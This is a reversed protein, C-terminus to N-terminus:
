GQFTVSHRGWFSPTEPHNTTFWSGNKGVMRIKRLCSFDSMPDGDLLVVDSRKGPEVTGLQAGRGVFEAAKITASQIAELSSMGIHRLRFLEDVLEGPFAVVAGLDTGACMNLGARYLKRCNEEVGAYQKRNARWFGFAKDYSENKFDLWTSSIFTLHEIAPPEFMEKARDSKLFELKEEFRAMSDNVTLTPVFTICRKRAKDVEDDTLVRDYVLHELSDIDFDLLKDFDEAWNHHVSVKLGLEHATKCVAALADDPITPMRLQDTYSRQYSTYGVKAVDAGCSKLYRVMAEAKEPTHLHLKPQGIMASLPFPVPNIFEPYGNKCSLVAGAALIEPGVLKGSNVKKRVSNMIKLPSLMDRVCVEGGALASTLNRRMQRLVWPGMIPPQESLFPSLIHAHCNILGPIMTLGGADIDDCGGPPESRIGIERILGGSALVNTPGTLKGDVVNLVNVDRLMVNEKTTEVKTLM